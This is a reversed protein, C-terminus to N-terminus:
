LASSGQNKRISEDKHARRHCVACLWLVALPKTYDPHHGETKSEAGCLQCVKSPVINGRKVHYNLVGNARHRDPYKKCYKRQYEAWTDHWKHSNRKISERNIERYREPHLERQHTMYERHCCLCEYDHGLSKSRNKTFENLPKEVRCVRCTRILM